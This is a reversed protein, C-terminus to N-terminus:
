TIIGLRQATLVLGPAASTRPCPSAAKDLALTTGPAAHDRALPRRADGSSACANLRPTLVFCRWQPPTRNRFAHPHALQVAADLHGFRDEVGERDRGLAERLGAIVDANLANLKEPRNLTIWAAPGRSEYLVSTV